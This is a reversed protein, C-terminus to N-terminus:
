VLIYLPKYMSTKLRRGFMKVNQLGNLFMLSRSCNPLQHCLPPLTKSLVNMFCHWGMSFKSRKPTTPVLMNVLVEVKKPDM